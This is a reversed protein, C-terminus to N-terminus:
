FGSKKNQFKCKKCMLCEKGCINDLAYLRIFEYANFNGTGAKETLKMILTDGNKHFINL